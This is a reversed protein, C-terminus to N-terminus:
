IFVKWYINWIDSNQMATQEGVGSMDARIQLMTM